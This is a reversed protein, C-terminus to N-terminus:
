PCNRKSRDGVNRLCANYKKNDRPPSMYINPFQDGSRENIEPISEGSNSENDLNEEPITDGPIKGAQNGAPNQAGPNDVESQDSENSDIAVM